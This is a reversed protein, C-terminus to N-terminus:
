WNVMPGYLPMSSGLQSRVSRLAPLVIHPLGSSSPSPGHYQPKNRMIEMAEKTIIGMNSVMYARTVDINAVHGYCMQMSFGVFLSNAPPNGNNEIFLKMTWPKHDGGSTPDMTDRFQSYGGLLEQGKGEAMDQSDRFIYKQTTLNGKGGWNDGNPLLKKDIYRGTDLRIWHGYVTNIQQDVTKNYDAAEVKHISGDTDITGAGKCAMVDISIGYVPLPCGFGNQSDAYVSWVNTCVNSNKYGKGTVLVGGMIQRNDNALNGASANFLNPGRLGYQTNGAFITYKHHIHNTNKSGDYTHGYVRPQITHSGSKQNTQLKTGGPLFVEQYDDNIIYGKYHDPSFPYWGKNRASKFTEGERQGVGDKFIRIDEAM